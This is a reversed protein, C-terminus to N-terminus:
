PEEGATRQLRFAHVRELEDLARTLSRELSAEYRSIRPQTLENPVLRTEQDRRIEAETSALRYAASRAEPEVERRLQDLLDAPDKRAYAAYTAVAHRLSGATWTLRAAWEVLDEDGDLEPLGPVPIVADQEPVALHHAAPVLALAQKDPIPTTAELSALCALIAVLAQTRTADGRIDEPHHPGFRVHVSASHRAELAHRRGLIDEVDAQSHTLTHQEFYFREPLRAPEVGAAPVWWLLRSWPM